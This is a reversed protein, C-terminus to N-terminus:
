ADGTTAEAEAAATQQQHPGIAFDGHAEARPVQAALSASSPFVSLALINRTDTGTSSARSPPSQPAAPAVLNPTARALERLRSATPLAAVEQSPPPLTLRPEVPMPPPAVLPIAVTATRLNGRLKPAEPPRPPAPPELIKHATPPPPPLTAALQMMNPLPAPVKLIPPNVLDPQLITQFSNDPNPSKSVMPQPGPYFHKAAKTGPASAGKKNKGRVRKAAGEQGRSGSNGGGVAPLLLESDLPIQEIVRFHREKTSYSGPHCVIWFIVIEHVLFSYLLGRGPVRNRGLDVSAAAFLAQDDRVEPVQVEDDLLTPM